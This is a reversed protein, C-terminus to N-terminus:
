KGGEVCNNFSSVQSNFQGIINKTEQALQNYQAVLNNYQDILENYKSSRSNTNDIEQRKAEIQLSLQDLQLKNNDIQSKLAIPPESCASLPLGFEQVGIWVTHGQYEGKIIAVGINVFRNHLVNARHGPSDMWKQVVEAEDKFNGLILNEGSVIYDYGFSKVLQGPDIGAPSVHEFYQKKFMDEAKAKAALDLLSNETLPPLSANNHRQINTWAIIKAKTLVVNNSQGGITLPSPAFVEKTIENITNGLNTKEFQLFRQGANQYLIFIDDKYHL